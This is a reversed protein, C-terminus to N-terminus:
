QPTSGRSWRPVGHPDIFQVNPPLANAQAMTAVHPLSARSAPAGTTAAASAAPTAKASAARASGIPALEGTEKFHELAAIKARTGAGPAFSDINLDKGTQDKYAQVLPEFKGIMYDLDTSLASQIGSKGKNPNYSEYHQNIQGEAPAKGELFKQLESSIFKRGENYDILWKQNTQDAATNSISNMWKFNHDPLNQAAIMLDYM